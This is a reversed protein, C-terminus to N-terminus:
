RWTERDATTRRFLPKQVAIPLAIQWLHSQWAIPWNTLAHTLVTNLGNFQDIDPAESQDDNILELQIM